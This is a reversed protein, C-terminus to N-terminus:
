SYVMLDMFTAGRANEADPVDIVDIQPEVWPKLPTPSQETTAIATDDNTMM